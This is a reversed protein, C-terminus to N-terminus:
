IYKRSRYIDFASYGLIMMIVLLYNLNRYSRTILLLSPSGKNFSSDIFWSWILIFFVLNIIYGKISRDIYLHGIGPMLIALINAREEKKKSRIWIEKIDRITKIKKEEQRKKLLGLCNSCVKIDYIYRHCRRCIATGCVPCYVSLYTKKKLYSSLLTMLFILILLSVVFFSVPTGDIFGSIDSIIQDNKAVNFKLAKQFLDLISFGEDIVLYRYSLTSKKAYLDTLKRNLGRAEEYRKNGEEFSLMERLAQSMNYHPSVLKSDREIAEKYFAIAKEYDKKYFYISGINNLIKASGPKKSLAQEYYRLAEDIRGQAKISIAVAFYGKWDDKDENIIQEYTSLPSLWEGRFIRNMLELGKSGNSLFFPGSLPLLLAALGLIILFFLGIAKERKRLYIWVITLGLIPIWIIGSQLLLPISFIIIVIMIISYRKFKIGTWEDINHKLLPIYRVLLYLLFIIFSSILSLFLVILLTGTWYFINWFDKYSTIFGDIYSSLAGFISRDKEFLIRSILYYPPPYNPSIEKAAYADELAASLDGKSVNEGAETLLAMSIPDINEIGLEVEIKKIRELAEAAKDREGKKLHDLRNRWETEIQPPIPLFTGDSLQQASVPSLSLSLNLSLSFGLILAITLNRIGKRLRLRLRNM